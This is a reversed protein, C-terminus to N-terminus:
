CIEFPDRDSSSCAVFLGALSQELRKALPALAIRESVSHRTCVVALGAAQARLTEHHRLEGTVLLDAGSALADEIFDGGSGALVAVRRIARDLSGAVLVHSADVARKLRAVVERLPVSDIEGVRGFGLSPAPEGSLSSGRSLPRRGQVGLVDALVDNTGGPAIDLSTHPCYVSLAM